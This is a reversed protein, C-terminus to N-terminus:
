GDMDSNSMKVLHVKTLGHRLHWTGKQTEPILNYIRVWLDYNLTYRAGSKAKAIKDHLEKIERTHEDPIPLSAGVKIENKAM